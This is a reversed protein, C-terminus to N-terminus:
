FLIANGREAIRREALELLQNRREWLTRMQQKNLWPGVTEDLQPRTLSELGSLMRRPFRYIEEERQLRCDKRFARSSDIKYVRWNSDILINSINESDADWILQHFVRIRCMQNAFEVHNPPTRGKDRRRDTETVANEVWMCLSGTTGSINREVCPPVIGLGLAKDLEYAAIEHKYSDRLGILTRGGADKAEKHITNVTKFVARLTRDGDSLTARRPRTIGSDILEVDVIEATHLFEEAAEGELPLGTLGDTVPIPLWTALILLLSFTTSVM